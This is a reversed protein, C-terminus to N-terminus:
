AEFSAVIQNRKEGLLGRSGLIKWTDPTFIRHDHKVHSVYDVKSGFAGSKLSEEVSGM